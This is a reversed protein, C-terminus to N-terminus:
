KKATVDYCWLSSFERIYLRGDALVPYTLATFDGREPPRNQPYFRGRERYGNPSPELLIAEGDDGHMYLRGDAALSTLSKTRQEWRITGTKFEVCVTIPVATGYLYDEVKIVGGMDFRLKPSYYVEEIVFVGDHLVPRILAGGGVATSSFVCGGSVVPTVVVGPAGKATRGYRWLMRGTKADVGVIGKALFQVYQKIGSFEAVVPSAYGSADGEPAACKWVLKGTSKKLAVMTANSGGPTCVLTQGDVLLSEAYAWDGSVGGFEVALQKRWREKGNSARLCVLDGDSGLVYLFQGDV